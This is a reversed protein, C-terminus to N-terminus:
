IKNNKISLHTLSNMSNILNFDKKFLDGTYYLEILNSFKEFKIDNYDLNNINLYKLKYFDIKEIIADIKKKEKEDKILSILVRRNVSSVNNIIDQYINIQNEKLNSKL